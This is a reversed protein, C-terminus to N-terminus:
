EVDYGQDEVAETMKEKSVQGEEYSVNVKGDQLHVEVATVGELELLATRVATECHACTMGKVNLTTQEM